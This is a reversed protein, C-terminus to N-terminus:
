QTMSTASDLVGVKKDSIVTVVNGLHNTIEYFKDGRLYDYNSGRPSPPKAWINRGQVGLRSSGYLDSEQLFLGFDALATSTDGHANYVNLVNGQADRVYWTYDVAATGFYLQKKGIRNGAADYTYDVRRLNSSGAASRSISTIKGYVNWKISDTGIYESSDRILNGIADYGYNNVPQTELDLNSVWSYSGDTETLHTLKNTGAAYHYDISDM